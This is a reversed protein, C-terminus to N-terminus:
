DAVQRWGDPEYERQIVVRYLGEDVAIPKHDAEVGGKNHSLVTKNKAEVFLNGDADIFVDGDIIEHKHGTAEGLALIKNKAKKTKPLRDTKFLFVDGQRYNM